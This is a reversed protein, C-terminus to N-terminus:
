ERGGVSWMMMGRREDSGDCGGDETMALFAEREEELPGARRWRRLPAEDEDTPSDVFRAAALPFFILGM